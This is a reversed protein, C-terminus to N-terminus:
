KQQSIDTQREQRIDWEKKKEIKMKMKNKIKVRECVVHPLWLSQHGQQDQSEQGMTKERKKKQKTVKKNKKKNTNKHQKTETRETCWAMCASSSLRLLLSLFLPRYYALQFLYVSARYEGYAQLLASLSSLSTLVRKAAVIYCRTSPPSSLPLAFQSLSGAGGPSFREDRGVGM